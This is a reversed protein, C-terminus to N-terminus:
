QTRDANPLHVSVGFVVPALAARAGEAPSLLHGKHEIRLENEPDLVVVFITTKQRRVDSIEIRGDAEDFAIVAWENDPNCEPLSWTRRNDVRQRDVMFVPANFWRAYESTNIQCAAIFEDWLRNKQWLIDRGVYGHVALARHRKGLQEIWHEALEGCEEAHIARCRSTEPGGASGNLDEAM